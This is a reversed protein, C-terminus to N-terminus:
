LLGEWNMKAVMSLTSLDMKAYVRTSDPHEHGLQRSINYLPFGKNILRTATWHRLAHPGYHRLEIGQSRLAKSIIPYVADCTLGRYPPVMCQFLSKKAPDNVRAKTLYSIIANGANATLPFVQPREGKARRFMITEQEWDIDDLQLNVLEHTRIGYVSLLVMIAYNRISAKDESASYYQIAALVQEKNPAFPLGDESYLRPPILVGSLRESCWNQIAAYQLFWRLCCIYGALTKRSINWRDHINDLLLDIHKPQMTDLEPHIEGLASLMRRLAKRRGEITHKSYNKEDSLFTLYEEAYERFSYPVPKRIHLGLYELWSTAIRKFIGKRYIANSDSKKGGGAYKSAGTMIEEESFSDKYGVLLNQITYLQIYAIMRLYNDSYGLSRSHKLYAEREALMPALAMKSRSQRRPFLSDLVPAELLGDRNSLGIFQLWKMATNIIQNKTFEGLHNERCFSKVSENVDEYTIIGNSKVCTPLLHVIRLLFASTRQLYDNKYGKSRLYELYSNRESLMPAELYAKLLKKDKIFETIIM